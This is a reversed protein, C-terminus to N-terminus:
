LLYNDVIRRLPRVVASGRSRAEVQAPSRRPPIEGLEIDNDNDDQGAAKRRAAVAPADPKSAYLERLLEGDFASAIPAVFIPYGVPSDCSSNIINRLCPRMQQISGREAHSSAMYLLENQQAAWLARVSERNVRVVSFRGVGREGRLLFYDVSRATQVTRMSVLSPVHNLIAERWQPESEDCICYQGRKPEYLELADYLDQHEEYPDVSGMQVFDLQLQLAFRLARRVVTMLEDIHRLAWEDNVSCLRMDGALAARVRAIFLTSDLRDTSSPWV